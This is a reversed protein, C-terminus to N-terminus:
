AAPTGARVVGIADDLLWRDGSRAFVFCTVSVSDAGPHPHRVVLVAGVRGDALVRADRVALLAARGAPESPYPTALEAYREATIPGEEAVFHRTYDDTALAFLRPLDGADVCAIYARAVAEIAAATAPDAPPGQPLDAETPVDPPWPAATPAPPPTAELAQLSALSRPAVRCEAPAPVVPTFDGHRTQVVGAPAVWAATALALLPPLLARPRM